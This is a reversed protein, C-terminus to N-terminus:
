ESLDIRTEIRASIQVEIGDEPFFKVIQNQTAFSTGAVIKIILHKVNGDILKRLRELSLQVDTIARSRTLVRGFDPHSPDLFTNVLGPSVLMHGAKSMFLSDVEEYFEDLFVVQVRAEAPLGNDAIIRLTLLEIDDLNIPGGNNLGLESSIGVDLTDTFHYGDIYGFLPLIVTADCAIKSTDQVFNYAYGEPNTLGQATYILNVPGENLMDSLMPSTNSNDIRHTTYAIDGIFQAAQLVPIDELAGGTILTTISNEPAYLSTFDVEIPIGSTNTILLEIAPDAFFLGAAGFQEFLNVQQTDVEAIGNYQGLYGYASHISNASLSLEFHLSDGPNTFEGSHTIIFNALINLANDNGPDTFDLKTNSIDFSFDGTVPLNGSYDLSLTRQFEVGMETLEPILMEVDIDHKFSSTVHIDLSASQFRISDLEEGNPFDFPLNFNQSIPIQDGALGSNIIAATFLNAVFTESIDQDPLAILDELGFEFLRQTFSIALIQGSESYVMNSLNLAPVLEGLGIVTHALPIAFAPDLGPFTTDPGINLEEKVCSALLVTAILIIFVPHLSLRM